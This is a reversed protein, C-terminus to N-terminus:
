NLASDGYSSDIVIDVPGTECYDKNNFIRPAGRGSADPYV